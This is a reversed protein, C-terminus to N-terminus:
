AAVVTILRNRLHLWSVNARQAIVAGISGLSRIGDHFRKPLDEREADGGIQDVVIRRPLDGIEAASSLSRMRPCGVLDFRELIAMRHARSCAQRQRQEEVRPLPSRIYHPEAALMNPVAPEFEGLMLVPACFGHGEFDRDHALELTDKIFRRAAVQCKEHGVESPWKGGRSEPVFKTPPAVLGTEPVARSMPQALGRSRPEGLKAGALMFDHRHRAM